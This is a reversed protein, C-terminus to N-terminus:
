GLYVTNVGGSRIKGEKRYNCIGNIKDVTYEKTAKNM